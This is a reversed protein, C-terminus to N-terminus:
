AAEGGPRAPQDRLQVARLYKRLRETTLGAAELQERWNLALDALKTKASLEWCRKIRRSTLGDLRAPDGLLVLYAWLALPVPKATQFVTGKVDSFETHCVGCRYRSLGPTLPDPVPKELDLGDFCDPCVPLGHSAHWRAARFTTALQRNLATM